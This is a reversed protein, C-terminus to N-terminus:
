DITVFVTQSTPQGNLWVRIPHDGTPLRPIRVNIQYLGSSVKGSFLVDANATGIEVVPKQLTPAPTSVIRSAPTAPTTEGLGTLYLLVIDGSKAARTTLGPYLGPRAALVGDAHVAAPYARNDADFLFLAPAQAQLDASFRNSELDGRRVQVEVRSGTLGDPTLVNIQTPSIFYVFASIGGITVATSNLSTPLSTGGPFDAASWIRTTTALNSGTITLWSGPSAISSFSAGNSVATVAPATDALGSQTITITQGTVIVTASRLSNGLNPAVQVFIRAAGAGSNPAPLTLWDASTSSSWVCTNAARIEFSLLGGSASAALATPSAQFACTIPAPGSNSPPDEILVPIVLESEFYLTPSITLRTSGTKSAAVVFTKATENPEFRLKTQPLTAISPDSLTLTLEQAFLSTFREITINCQGGAIALCPNPSLKFRGIQVSGRGNYSFGDNRATATIATTGASLTTLPILSYDKSAPIIIDTSNAATLRLGFPIRNGAGLPRRISINQTGPTDFYVSPIQLFRDASAPIDAVTPQASSTEPDLSRFLAAQVSKLDGNFTTYSTSIENLFASRAGYSQGSSTTVLEGRIGWGKLHNSVNTGSSVAFIGQVEIGGLTTLQRVLLEYSYTTPLGASSEPDGRLLLGPADNNANADVFLYLKRCAA